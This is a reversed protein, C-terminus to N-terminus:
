AAEGDELARGLREAADVLGAVAAESLRKDEAEALSRFTIFLRLGTMQRALSERDPRLVGRSALEDRYAEWIRDLVPPKWGNSLFALDFAPSGLAALEWDIPCVRTGGNTGHVLVNHRRFSGHVLTVPGATFSAVARTYADVTPEIRRALAPCRDAVRMAGEAVGLFFARNHHVLFPCDEVREAYRAFHAQMRGLWGAAHVFHEPNRWHLRDGPVFELLLWYRARCADWVEGHLRATGLNADCLLSRYVRRERERCELLGSSCHQPPSFDKLLIDLTDGGALRLTVAECAHLTDEGVRRRHIGVICRAAGPRDHLVNQLCRQLDADATRAYHLSTREVSM